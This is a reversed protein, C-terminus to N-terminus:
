LGEATDADRQAAWSLGRCYGSHQAKSLAARLAEIQKAQEANERAQARLAIAAEQCLPDAFAKYSQSGATAGVPRFDQRAFLREILQTYDSM